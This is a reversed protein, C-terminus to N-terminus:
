WGGADRGAVARRPAQTYTHRPSEVHIASGTEPRPRDAGSMAKPWLKRGIERVGGSSRYM